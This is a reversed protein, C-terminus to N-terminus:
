KRQQRGWEWPFRKCKKTFGECKRTAFAKMKEVTKALEKMRLAQHWWFPM